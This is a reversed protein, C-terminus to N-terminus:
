RRLVDNEIDCAAVGRVGLYIFVGLICGWGWLCVSLGEGMSLCEGRLVGHEM